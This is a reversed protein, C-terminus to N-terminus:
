RTKLLADLTAQQDRLRADIDRVAKMVESTHAALLRSLAAESVTTGGGAEALTREEVRTSENNEIGQTLGQAAVMEEKYRRAEKAQQGKQSLKLGAKRFSQLRM